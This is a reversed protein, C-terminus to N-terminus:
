PTEKKPKYQNMEAKFYDMIELEENIDLEQLYEILTKPM